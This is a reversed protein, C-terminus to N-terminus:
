VMKEEKTYANLHYTSLFNIPLTITVKAGCESGESEIKIEGHHAEIVSRSVSLGIGMGTPNIGKARNSRYFSHNLISSREDKTIGIGSNEVIFVFFDNTTTNTINITGGPINYKIANEIIVILVERIKNIDINIMPWGDTDKSYTVQINMQELDMKLEELVSELIPLVSAMSTNLIQSGSRLKAIDKFDNAISTLNNASNLAEIIVKGIEPRVEGYKGSIVSNLRNSISTIPIRLNHQAISVFQDKTENLKELERRAKKELNYSLSLEKTQELVQASLSSNLISIRDTYFKEGRMIKLMLLAILISQIINTINLISTSNSINFILESSILVIICSLFLKYGIAYISLSGVIMMLYVVFVLLAPMLLLGYLNIEYIGTMSSIYETIEFILLFVVLVVGISLINKSDTYGCRLIRKSSHYFIIMITAIEILLKYNTLLKNNIVECNIQNFGNISNGSVTVVVAPILIFILIVKENLSIDQNKAYVVFFYGCFLYFIINILDLPAWFVSILYPNTSIWTITDFFLWLCFSSIFIVLLKHALVRSKNPIIYILLLGVIIPIIHSYYIIHGFEIAGTCTNILGYSM